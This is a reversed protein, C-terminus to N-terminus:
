TQCKIACPSFLRGFLELARFGFYSENNHNPGTQRIRILRFVQCPSTLFVATKSEGKLDCNNTREDLVVWQSGDHSGKLVWSKPLKRPTGGSVNVSQIYYNTVEVTRGRFDYCLWQATTAGQSLWETNASLDIVNSSAYSSGHESSATIQVVGCKNSM